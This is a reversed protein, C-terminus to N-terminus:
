EGKAHAVLLAFIITGGVVLLWKWGGSDFFYYLGKGVSVLIMIVLVAIILFALWIIWGGKTDNNNEM